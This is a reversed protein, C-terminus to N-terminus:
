ESGERKSLISVLAAGTRLLGIAFGATAALALIIFPTILLVEAVTV